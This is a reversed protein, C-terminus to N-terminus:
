SPFKTFHRCDEYNLSVIKYLESLTIFEIENKKCFVLLKELDNLYKQCSRENLTYPSANPIIEVNHFMLNFFISNREEYFKELRRIISYLDGINSFFPRLWFIKDHFPAFRFKLIESIFKTYSLRKLKVITLPVELINEVFFPQDAMNTFDIVKERSKDNWKINPTVSSDVYYGCEALSKLTNSGVSFRGARFSKPKYGFKEEFLKTINKIKESEIESELFCCNAEAKKGAYDSYKKEPEVFEPHLHTGLECKESFSKLIEVSNKDELVVNNVLYTPKVQYKEFIPQLRDKIGSSVGRFTLPNSYNWTSSCDPEVDISIALYKKM